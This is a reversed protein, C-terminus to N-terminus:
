YSDTTSLWCQSNKFHCHTMNISMYKGASHKKNVANLQFFHTYHVTEVLKLVEIAMKVIILNIKGINLQIYRIQLLNLSNVYFGQPWITTKEPTSVKGGSDFPVRYKNYHNISIISKFPTGNHLWMLVCDEFELSFLITYYLTAM